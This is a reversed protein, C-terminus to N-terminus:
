NMKAIVFHRQFVPGILLNDKYVAAVSSASIESGDNMYMTEQTFGGDDSPTLRIVESPSLANENKAHALFKLLQPHCGVWLNGAPDLEINDVGTGTFVVSSEQLAGTAPDRNIVVIARASSASVYLRTGDLSRNIGNAYKLGEISTSAVRQGDFYCVNGTGIMLLDKISRMTSLSENHDNTFYFSREGVGAVDNPSVILADSFSELHVLSDNRFEFREIFNGSKRHNVVFLISKGNTTKYLSIGHPHFDEQALSKTLEVPVLVSDNLDLGYIAGKVPNRGLTTAWRDDSSLFAMGNSQDITIDEVGALGEMSMVTGSFRNTITKFAGSQWVTKLAFAVFILVAGLIVKLSNKM